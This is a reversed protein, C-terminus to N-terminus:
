ELEPSEEQDVTGATDEKIESIIETNASVSEAEESENSVM